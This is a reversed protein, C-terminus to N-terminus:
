PDPAASMKPWRSHAWAIPWGAYFAAHTFIEAM